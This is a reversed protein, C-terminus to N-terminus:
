RALVKFLLKISGISLVDDHQFRTTGVKNDNLKVGNTSGNDFIHWIGQDCRIIAHKSSVTPDELVVDCLQSRGVSWEKDSFAPLTLKIFAGKKRGNKVIFLAPVTKSDIGAFLLPDQLVGQLEDAPEQVGSLDHKGPDLGLSHFLSSQIMTRNSTSDSGLELEPAAALYNGHAADTEDLRPDIFVFKADGITIVDGHRLRHPRSVRMSNVFTGNTSELDKLLVTEPDVLLVAAHHRSLLGSDIFVDCQESRGILTSAQDIVHLEDSNVNKLRYSRQM